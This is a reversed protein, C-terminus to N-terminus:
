YKIKIGGTGNCNKCKKAKGLNYIAGEGDCDPCAHEIVQGELEKMIKKSMAKDLEEYKRAPTM